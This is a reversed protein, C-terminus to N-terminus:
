NPEALLEAMGMVGNMPTRIEHSMNALFESKARDASEARQNAEQLQVERQKQESIDFYSILRRESSLNTVSYIMHVGDAREFHRPEVNGKRIEATRTAVYNEWDADKVDYVGNHRNIDMLARFPSGPGFSDLDIKWLKYFSDNIVECKLDRDVVVVALSVSNLTDVLDEFLLEAKIHAEELQLERQKLETVDNTSGILYKTGDATVFPRKHAVRYQKTGDDNVITEEFSLTKDGSLVRRDDAAFKEGDAGLLDIDSKGVAGELALGTVESWAQNVYILKLDATKGYISMPLNDIMGRFVENERQAEQLHKERRKLETIDSVTTVIGGGERPEGEILIHRGDTTARELRHREGKAVRRKAAEARRRGEEGEGYDGRAALFEFYDNWPRGPQLYEPPMDLMEAARASAFEIAETGFVVLGQRMSTAADLLVRSSKDAERQAEELRKERSKLETIDTHTAVWGGDQMPQHRVEVVQGTKLEVIEVGVERSSFRSENRRKFAESGGTWQIGHAARHAVIDDHPTGPRTLEPPLQYLAAYQQNCMVLQQNSDFMCLGQAMRWGMSGNFGPSPQRGFIGLAVNVPLVEADQHEMVRALDVFQRDMSLM